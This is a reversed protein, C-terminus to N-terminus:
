FFVHFAGGELQWEFIRMFLGVGEVPWEFVLTFAVGGRRSSGNSIVRAHWSRAMDGILSLSLGRLLLAAGHALINQRDSRGDSHRDSRLFRVLEM